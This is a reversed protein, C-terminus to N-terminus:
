LLTLIACVVFCMVFIRGMRFVDQSGSFDIDFKMTMNPHMIGWQLGLRSSGNGDGTNESKDFLQYVYVETMAEKKLPTGMGLKLHNILGKLYVEAYAETAEAEGPINGVHSRGLSTPWGTEAVILPISEHGSVTLAAIVADVMLDFLNRYRVGTISDDHFNFPNEQFLVFGIPVETKMRYVDYPYINVLLSSNTEGLFDFVKNMVLDFLPRQFDASSPPFPISMIKDFSFTTSVAIGKIGFEFLARRLNEMAPRLKDSPDSFYNDSPSSIVDVGASIM